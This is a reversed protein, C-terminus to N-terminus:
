VDEDPFFMRLCEMLRDYARGRPSSAELRVQFNYFVDAYPSAIGVRVRAGSARCIYGSPLINDLNLDVALQYRRQTVQAIVKQPPLYWTSLDVADIPIIRASPLVRDVSSRGGPAIVTLSKEDFRGAFASLIPALAPAPTPAFPMIILLSSNAPIPDGFAIIPNETKRFTFRSASIGVFLRLSDLM